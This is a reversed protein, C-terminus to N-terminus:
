GCPHRQLGPSVMEADREKRQEVLIMSPHCINVAVMTLFMLTSDFVYMFAEHSILYGSNGQAYEILRFISRVLILASAIYLGVLVTEWTRSTQQRLRAAMAVVEDTPYRRIRYHFLACNIVFFGFFALQVCLGGVTIHEGLNYSSITGSAMIGGGAAQMLFAIVDGTVFIKTMWKVSVLSLNEARVFIVLRGLVMYISAAYLPPALLILITQVSYIPVSEKNNHALIRCIYGIIQFIGGIMFAIFYWARARSLQYTHYVTTLVFLVVFTAAAATSPTYRYLKFDIKDDSAM